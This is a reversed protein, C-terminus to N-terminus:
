KRDKYLKAYYGVKICSQKNGWEQVAKYIKGGKYIKYLEGNRHLRTCDDVKKSLRTYDEVETGNKFKAGKYLLIYNEVGICSQINKM